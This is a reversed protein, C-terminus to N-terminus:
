ANSFEGALRSISARGARYQLRVLQRGKADRVVSVVRYEGDCALGAGVQDRNFKLVQGGSYFRALQKEQDSLGAPTLVAVARGHRDPKAGCLQEQLIQASRM